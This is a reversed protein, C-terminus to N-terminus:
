VPLGLEKRVALGLKELVYPKKVYSGAGLSQAKRVRDTESFGSVIIAKQKPNIDLVRQYTELGDIGPEMIMDLVLLDVRNSKIYEVADEGSSVACARYALRTLMSVALERQGEVDDVVLISEGKGMYQDPSAKRQDRALQERTVPFYLTFTSGMREQSRVDIYGDHDKVTGWVVALGLGTGSRGMVKKTYFPEFIKGLDAQSIGKGNDSVTLVVYDGEQMDDYGRIPKDLYLNDTRIIVEGKDSIAEAANSVLNMVTKELHISSGKINLLGEEFDTEFTLNLHYDKLKEFEPSKLYDSVVDNLNVVESVAVGRRALTLLDQIIAAGKESSQLIHSVYRYLPDGKPIKELLLESYGVLVGLVNNLDHAVGGALTGLAEMKEARSLRDELRKRETNDRICEIAAVVEGKSDRLVSATGSLHVNGSPLSPAYAEGFIIDSRRQIATYHREREQNPHLALDILIPRREGYFPLSYEYDGKGIMEEAKVGTMAEMARNWAIVKGYKDIVLTADPLFNIIDAFQQRSEILAGEAEKYDTIDRISEIAGMHNGHIDLLPAGTAFVHAGKGGYVCPVYTQASLINGKRQISHYKSELEENSVGILDLLYPRREGYFPLTCEHDGKGIMNKKSVGTMEEIARNWAVVKGECDIVFTADPLFEIIDNLGQNATILAEEARKRELEHKDRQLRTDLIPSINGAIRELVTKDEVTFGRDKNAVSVLGITKDAFVIPVTLFNYVPLHGEPIQFPGDSSFSKKEKIAKGWLSNGWQHRPFVISKGEVQCDSWIERTMSPIILDGSDGIYGFIGYRCKLEKLIVALVEEYIKEDPITLFVNAIQNLIAKERESQQLANETRKRETIDNGVCLIEVVRGNEYRIPKNTWAVWVREKNRRVNENINNIYRDPNIGIDEIMARLDRGTSELEPVIAGVVNKGLIEEESYCFFRQAFENFFTVKGVSDMRLIISNANEVLERYKEESEKLAELTLQLESTKLFVRKRLTYNWLMLIVVLLAAGMSSYLIYRLYAPNIGVISGMWRKDIQAYEDRSIKSFGGEIVNLLDQRGKTVARHFRGVYLPLSSRYESEINMKYLYYLAPPEDICFVRIKQAVAAQVIEEYSNYVQLTTIGHQKLIEICADGEKVGVTFGQLSYPDSIGSINKHFFIPVKITVYPKTFDYREAREETHFITDIVDAKGDAMFKQAKGWDMGIINVGIGTKKEWLNWQDVIIGQLKGGSDRFIYPPYNDDSVVTITGPGEPNTVQDAYGYLLLYLVIAFAHLPVLNVKKWLKM